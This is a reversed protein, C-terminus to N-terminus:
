LCLLLFSSLLLCALLNFKFDDCGHVIGKVEDLFGMTVKEEDYEVSAELCMALLTSM